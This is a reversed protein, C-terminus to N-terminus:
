GRFNARKRFELLQTVGQSANCRKGTKPCPIPSRTGSDSGCDDGSTGTVGGRWQLGAVPGALWSRILRAQFRRGAGTHLTWGGAGDMVVRVVRSEPALTAHYVSAAGLLLVGLGLVARWGSPLNAGAVGCLAISALLVLFARCWGVRSSSIDLIILFGNFWM